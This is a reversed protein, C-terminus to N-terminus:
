DGSDSEMTACSDLRYSSFFDYLQDAHFPASKLQSQATRIATDDHHRLATIMRELIPRTATFDGEEVSVWSSNLTAQDPARAVLAELQSFYAQLISISGTYDTLLSPYDNSSVARPLALLSTDTDACLINADTVFQDATLATTGSPVPTSTASSADNAAACGTAAFM